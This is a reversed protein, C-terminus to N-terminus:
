QREIVFAAFKPLGNSPITDGIRAAATWILMPVNVSGGTYVFNWTEAKNQTNRLKYSGGALLPSFDVGVWEASDRNFIALSGLWRASKTFPMLWVKTAPQQVRSYGSPDIPMYLDPDASQYFVNKSETLDEWPLSNDRNVSYGDVDVFENNAILGRINHYGEEERITYRGHQCHYGYQVNRQYIFDILGLGGGTHVSDGAVINDECTFDKLYNKGLSYLHITYRGLNDHFINRAIRRSGGSHNHSYISHGYGGGATDHFGNNYFVCESIEGAGSGFWSVGSSHIDHVLCGYLGFGKISANIGNTVYTRDLRSDMFEIDCFHIWQTNVISLSGDVIVKGPNVPKFTIPLNETGFLNSSIFDGTYVGDDM